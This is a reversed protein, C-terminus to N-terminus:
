LRDGLDGWGGNQVSAYQKIIFAIKLRKSLVFFTVFRWCHLKSCKSGYICNPIIGCLPTQCGADDWRKQVAWREFTYQRSPCNVPIFMHIMCM